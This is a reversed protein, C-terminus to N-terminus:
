DFWEKLRDLFGKRRPQVSEGKEDAEIQELEELLERQRASLRSPTEVQLRILQDGRGGGRVKPLGKGRLRLVKGSQTGAPVKVQAKGELTPVEISAGLAVQPFSVPVECVLDDGERVFFPDDTVQIRVYLDGPHGGNRGHGGEGDLRLKHGTAVGPPVPLTISVEETALGSGRCDGCPTGISQGRGGCDPCGQVMQIFGHAVRVKGAGGCTSCTVPRSGPAAGSGDCPKCRGPRTFSVKRDGGLAVENLSLTLDVVIDRGHRAGRRTAGMGGFFSGFLEGFLDGGFIDRLDDPNIGGAFPNGGAAPGEHGFRDYHARKQPDSLVAYAENIQKFKEEADPADNRDPHYQLALQRFAKKLEAADVDRPVGLLEYYDLKEAM